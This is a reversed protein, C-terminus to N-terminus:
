RRLYLLQRIQHKRDTSSFTNRAGRIVVLNDLATAKTLQLRRQVALRGYRDVSLDRPEVLPNQKPTYGPNSPM